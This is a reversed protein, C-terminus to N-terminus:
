IRKKIDKAAQIAVAAVQIMEDYSDKNNQASIAESVEEILIAAWTLNGLTNGKECKWKAVEEEPVGHLVCRTDPDYDIFTLPYSQEGWKSNQRDIEYLIDKMVKDM